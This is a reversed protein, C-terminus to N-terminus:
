NNQNNLHNATTQTDAILHLLGTDAKWSGLNPLADPSLDLRDLLRAKEAASGGDLSRLLWPWQLAGFSVVAVADWFSKRITGGDTRALLSTTDRTTM